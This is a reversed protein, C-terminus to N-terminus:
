PAYSLAALLNCDESTVLSLLEQNYNIFMDSLTDDDGGDPDILSAGEADLLDDANVVPGYEDESLAFVLTRAEPFATVIDAALMSMLCMGMEKHTKEVLDRKEDFKHMLFTKRAIMAEETITM